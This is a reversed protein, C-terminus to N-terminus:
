FNLRRKYNKFFSMNTPQIDNSRVRTRNSSETKVDKPRSKQPVPKKQTKPPASTTTNTSEPEFDEPTFRAPYAKVCKAEYSNCNQESERGLECM